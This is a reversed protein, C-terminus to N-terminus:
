TKSSFPRASIAPRHPRVPIAGTPTARHGPPITMRWAAIEAPPLRSIRRDGFASLAKALLWRLKEVTEPEGDHQALYVDVRIAHEHGDRALHGYHRDIMGLSTGM